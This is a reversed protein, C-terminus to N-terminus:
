KVYIVYGGSVKVVRAKNNRRADKAFLEAERKTPIVKSWKHYRKGNFTRNNAVM